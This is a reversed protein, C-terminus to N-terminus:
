FPLASRIQSLFGVSASERKEEFVPHLANLLEQKTDFNRKGARDLATSLSMTRGAANYPISEDGLRREISEADTPFTVDAEGLRADLAAIGFEIVDPEDSDDQPPRVGM